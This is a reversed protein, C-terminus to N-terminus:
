PTRGKNAEAQRKIIRNIEKKLGRGSKHLLVRALVRRSEAEEKTFKGAKEKEDIKRILKLASLANKALSKLDKVRAFIIKLEPSRRKKAIGKLKDELENAGWVKACVIGLAQQPLNGSDILGLIRGRSKPAFTKLTDTCFDVMSKEPEDDTANVFPFDTELATLAFDIGKDGLGEVVINMAVWRNDPSTSKLLKQIEQLASARTESTSLADRASVLATNLAMDRIMDDASDNRFLNMMPIFAVGNAVMELSELQEGTWNYDPNNKHLNVLATVLQHGADPAKMKRLFQSLERVNWGNQILLGAGNIGHNGLHRIQSVKIRAQVQSRVDEKTPPRNPDLLGHFAWEAVRKRIKDGMEDDTFDALRLLADRTRAAGDGAATSPELIPYLKDSIQNSIRERDPAVKLMRPLEFSYGKEIMLEIARVRVDFPAQDPDAMLESIRKFGESNQTWRDLDGEDISGFCGSLCLSALLWITPISPPLIFISRRRIMIKELTPGIDLCGKPSSAFAPHKLM